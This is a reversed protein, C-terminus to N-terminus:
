PTPAKSSPTQVFLAMEAKPLALVRLAEKAAQKEADRRSAGKGLTVIFQGETNLAVACSVLFLNEPDQRAGKVEYVPRALRHGQSWEQLASKPDREGVASGGEELMPIFLKRTVQQVAPYGGDLFVAAIVAEVADSVVAPVPRRGRRSDPSAVVIHESLGLQKGIEFLGEQGVLTARMRSLKGQDAGKARQYLLEAVAAGLVADGLFELRENNGPGASQHTLALRLIDPRNFHHGIALQLATYDFSL